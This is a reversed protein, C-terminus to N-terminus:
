IHGLSTSRTWNYSKKQFLEESSHNAILQQVQQYSNDLKKKVEELAADQYDQWIKRNLNPLTRWTYGKAPMDPKGWDAFGRMVKHQHVRKPHCAPIPYSDGYYIGSNKSQKMQHALVFMLGVLSRPILNVFHKYSMLDPFDKRLDYWVYDNYYSKFCKYGSHHYYVLITMVESLSLRTPYDRGILRLHRM